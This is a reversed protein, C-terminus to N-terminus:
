RRCRKCRSQCRLSFKNNKNMQRYGFVNKAENLTSATTGCNPCKVTDSKSSYRLRNLFVDMKYEIKSLMIEIEEDPVTGSSALIRKVAENIIIIIHICLGETKSMRKWRLCTCSFIGDTSYELSHADPSTTLDVVVVNKGVNGRVVGDSMGTPIQVENFSTRGVAVIEKFKTTMSIQWLKNLFRFYKSSYDVFREIGVDLTIEELAGIYQTTAVSRDFMTIDALGSEYNVSEVKVICSKHDGYRVVAVAGRRTPIVPTIKCWERLNRKSILQVTKDKEMLSRVEKNPRLFSIIFGQEGRGRNSLITRMEKLMKVTIKKDIMLKIYATDSRMVLGLDDIIKLEAQTFEYGSLDVAFDFGTLDNPPHKMMNSRSMIMGAIRTVQDDQDEFDGKELMTIEKIFEDPGIRRGFFKRKKSHMQENITKYDDIVFYENLYPRLKWYGEKRIIKYDSILDDLTLQLLAQPMHMMAPLKKRITDALDQHTIGARNRITGVVHHPLKTQYRDMRVKGDNDAELLSDADMDALISRTLDALQKRGLNLLSGSHEPMVQGFQAITTPITKTIADISVFSETRYLQLTIVMRLTNYAIRDRTYQNFMSLRQKLYAYRSALRQDALNMDRSKAGKQNSRRKPELKLMQIVSKHDTYGSLNFKKILDKVYEGDVYLEVFEVLDILPFRQYIKELTSKFKHADERDSLEDIARQIDAIYPDVPERFAEVDPEDDDSSASLM